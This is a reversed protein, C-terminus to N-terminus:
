RLHQEVNLKKSSIKDYRPDSRDPVLDALIALQSAAAEWEGLRISRDARFMFDEYRADRMETARALGEKAKVFLEPKPEITELYLMAESYNKIAEALNRHRLEREAFRAEGLQFSQEAYRMLEDTGKLLTFLVQVESKAFDELILAARAMAKPPERNLVKVHHYRRNRQITLDYLDYEGEAIGVHDSGIDFFRTDDLQSMLQLRMPESITTEEQVHRKYKLDDVVVKLNGKEDLDIQYRFINRTDARVREYSCALTEAVPATQAASPEALKMAELAVYVLVGAVLLSTGVQVVRNTMSSKPHGDKHRASEHKASKSGRFGLDIEAPTEAPATEPTAPTVAAAPSANIIRFATAGVEVLDGVKLPHEDVPMGGVTTKEGAGFDTVWLSGDSKFFFRGHFLMVSSDDLVLDNAPSRGFKMGGAPVTVEKGVEKGQEIILHSMANGIKSQRNKIASKDTQSAM